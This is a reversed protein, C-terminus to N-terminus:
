PLTGWSSLRLYKDIPILSNETARFPSGVSFYNLFDSFCAKLLAHELWDLQSGSITFYNLGPIPLVIVPLTTQVLILLFWIQNDVNKNKNIKMRDNNTM